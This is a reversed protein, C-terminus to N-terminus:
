MNQRGGMMSSSNIEPLQLTPKSPNRILGVNHNVEQGRLHSKYRHDISAKRAGGYLNGAGMQGVGMGQNNVFKEESAKRNMIQYQGHHRVGGSGLAGARKANM